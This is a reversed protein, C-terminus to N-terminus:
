NNLNGWEDQDKISNNIKNQRDQLYISKMSSYLDLSNKELSNFNTFNDARFDIATAGKVSYFDLTNGQLSWFSM